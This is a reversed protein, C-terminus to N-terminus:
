FYDIPQKQKIGQYVELARKSHELYYAKEAHMLAEKQHNLKYEALALILLVGANDGQKKLSKEAFDKAKLEGETILIIYALQSYTKPDPQIDIAKKYNIKANKYDKKKQNALGLNYYGSFSPFLQNAKQLHVIAEDLRNIRSLEVGLNAHLEHSENVQLDKTYLTLGDRWDFNRMVTRISLLCILLILFIYLVKKATKIGTLHYVPISILGLLGAMPVYFWRDAVTMTLPFFQLNPIMGIVFWALFFLFLKIHRKQFRYVYIGYLFITLIFLLLILLSEAFGPDNVSKIIWHQSIALHVPYFFTKLYYVVISPLTTLREMFSAEMIPTQRAYLSYPNTIFKINRLFLYVVVLVSSSILFSKIQNKKYLFIYFFAILLLLFGSEKSLVSLFLLSVALYIKGSNLHDKTLIYIASIGFVFYLLGEITFHVTETNMPHVLFLLSLIFAFTIKFYKKFILFIFISSLIHLTLRIIRYFFPNDKFLAVNITEVTATLPRYSQWKNVDAPDKKDVGFFFGPINNLSQYIPNEVLGIKDDWVFANFLSNAYIVIGILIIYHIAKFPTFPVFFKKFSFDDERDNM